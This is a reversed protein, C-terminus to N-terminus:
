DTDAESYSNNEEDEEGLGENEDDDEAGPIDLDEGTLDERMSKENLPTGDEDTNDLEASKLQQEDDSYANNEFAGDLIEKEVPSINAEEDMPTNKEDQM